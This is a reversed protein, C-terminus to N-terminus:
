RRMAWAEIEVLGGRPLRSSLSLRALRATSGFSEVYAANM